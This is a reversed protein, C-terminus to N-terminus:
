LSGCHMNIRPLHRFRSYSLNQQRLDTPLYNWVRPGAASFARGNFNTRTQSVLLTWTDTSCLRHRSLMGGGPLQYRSWVAVPPGPHHGPVQRTAVSFAHNNALETQGDWVSLGWFTVFFEYRDFEM